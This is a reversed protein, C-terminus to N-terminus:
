PTTNVTFATEFESYTVIPAPLKSECTLSFTFGVPDGIATGTFGSDGGTNQLGNAELGAYLYTGDKLLVVAELRGKNIEEALTVLAATYGHLTFELTQTVYTTAANSDGTLPQTFTSVNQTPYLEYATGGTGGITVAGSAVALTVSSAERAQKDIIYIKEVGGVSKCGRLYTSLTLTCSM